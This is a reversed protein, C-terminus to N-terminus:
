DEFHRLFAPNKEGIEAYIQLCVDIWGRVRNCQHLSSAATDGYNIFSDHYCGGACIPRVWCTHCDERAGIHHTELFARRAPQDVGGDMVNGMQAVPSDVFRHCAGIQGSTGVGLLGL